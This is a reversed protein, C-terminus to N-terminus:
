RSVMRLGSRAIVAALDDDAPAPTPRSDSVGTERIFAELDSRLIALAGNSLEVLPKGAAAARRALKRFDREDKFGEAVANHESVLLAAAAVYTPKYIFPDEALNKQTM